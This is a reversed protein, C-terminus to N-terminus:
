RNHDKAGFATESLNPSERNRRDANYPSHFEKDWLDAVGIWWANYEMGEGFQYMWNLYKEKIDGVRERTLPRPKITGQKPDGCKPVIKSMVAAAHKGFNGEIIITKFWHWMNQAYKDDTFSALMRCESELTQLKGRIFQAIKKDEPSIPEGAATAPYKELKEALKYWYQDYKEEILKNYVDVAAYYAECKNPLPAITSITEKKEEKPIKIHYGKQEAISLAHENNVELNNEVTKARDKNIQRVQFNKDLYDQLEEPNMTEIDKLGVTTIEEFDPSIDRGIGERVLSERRFEKPLVQNVYDIENENFGLIRLDRRIETCIWDRPKNWTGISIKGDLAEAWKRICEGKKLRWEKIIPHNEEENRLRLLEYKADKIIDDFHRSEGTIETNHVLGVDLTEASIM